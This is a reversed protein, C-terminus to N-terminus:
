EAGVNRQADLAAIDVVGADPNAAMFSAFEAREDESWWRPWLKQVIRSEVVTFVSLVTRRLCMM